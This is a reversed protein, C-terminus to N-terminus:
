RGQFFDGRALIDATEERGMKLYSLFTSELKHGSIKMLFVPKEGKLYANTLFSRRATHTGVLEYKPRREVATTGGLSTRVDVPTDIGAYKCLHKIYKRTKDESLSASLDFGSDLIERIVPHLPIVVPEATKKTVMYIRGDRINEASLRNFDSVRLGTFAGILFRNKVITYSQIINAAM